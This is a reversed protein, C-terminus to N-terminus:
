KAAGESEPPPGYADGHLWLHVLEGQPEAPLADLLAFDVTYGIAEVYMVTFDRELAAMLAGLSLAKSGLPSLIIQSGGVESFVRSRADDIRLISRYLDVPSKEDAYVLDRADVHWSTNPDGPQLEERYAEILEDPLRPNSSPFPLIPCVVTNPQANRLLQFIQRLIAQKGRSLQPMWLKAADAKDSLGWGGKFGFVTTASAWPTSRIAGDTEPNDSVIVHLNRPEGDRAQEVCRLLHRVLPYVIGLSLASSDVIVDTLGALSEGNIVGVANRGGVVANDDAFVDIARVPSGPLLALLRDRNSEARRVLEADPGPREERLFLGRVRGPAAAVLLQCVRTSRPDFGAGAVLLVRRTHDALYQDLFATAHAGRFYICPEWRRPTM